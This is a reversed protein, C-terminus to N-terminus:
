SLQMIEGPFAFICNLCLQYHLMYIKNQISSFSFETLRLILLVVRWLVSFSYKKFGQQSSCVILPGVYFYLPNFLILFFLDFSFYSIGWSFPKSHGLLSFHFKFLNLHFHFHLVLFFPQINRLWIGRSSSYLLSPPFFLVCSPPSLLPPLLCVNLSSFLNFNLLTLCPSNDIYYFDLLCSIRYVKLPNYM